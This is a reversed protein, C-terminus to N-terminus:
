AYTKLLNNQTLEFDKLMFSIKKGFYRPIIDLDCVVLLLGELYPFIIELMTEREMIIFDLPGISDDFEMSLSIQLTRQMFYMEAEQKTMKTFIRDNRFLSEIARGNKNIASIFFVHENSALIEKCLQSIATNRELSSPEM